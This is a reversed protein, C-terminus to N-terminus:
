VEGHNRRRPVENIVGLDVDLDDKAFSQNNEMDLHVDLQVDVDLMVYLNM